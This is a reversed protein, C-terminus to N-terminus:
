VFNSKKIKEKPQIQGKIINKFDCQSIQSKESLM